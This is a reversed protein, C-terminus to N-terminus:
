WIQRMRWSRMGLGWVGTFACTYYAHWARARQGKGDLVMRWIVGRMKAYYRTDM